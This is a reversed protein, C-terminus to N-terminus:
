CFGPSFWSCWQPQLYLGHQRDWLDNVMLADRLGFTVVVLAAVLLGFVEPTSRKHYAHWLRYMAYIGITLMFPSWGHRALTYFVAVPLAAFALVALVGAICLGKELRPQPEDIYRNIFIVSLIAFWQLSSYRTLWDWVWTPVPIHVVLINLNHLAWVMVVLAFWGYISEHRRSLWLAGIFLGQFALGTTIVWVIGVKLLLRRKYVPELSEEPGLYLKGLLGSRAPGTKLLM